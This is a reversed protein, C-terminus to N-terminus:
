RKKNTQVRKKGGKRKKSFKQKSRKGGGLPKGDGVKKLDGEKNGDIPTAIATVPKNECSKKAASLEGEATSLGTKIEALKEGIVKASEQLKKITDETTSLPKEAGFLNGFLDM